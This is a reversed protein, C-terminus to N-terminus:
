MIHSEIHAKAEQDITRVRAEFLARVPKHRGQFKKELDNDVMGYYIQNLVKTEDQYLIRSPYYPYTVDTISEFTPQFTVEGERM